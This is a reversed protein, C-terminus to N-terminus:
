KARLLILSPLVVADALLAVVMIFTNLLGFYITPVFSALVLVGFGICVIISSSIMARGKVKIGSRVSEVISWGEDRKMQYQTLFHVTNDVAIGIAVSSILATGTNLEIGAAGMLGFNLLIPISNPILSLFGLKVSKLSVGMLISIIFFAVCLSEDQVARGTVRIDMEPHPTKAIFNRIDDIMERQHDSRHVSSRVALRAQDYSSTVFDNIDSGGYLLLYQATLNKTAPLKYYVPDGDHFGQNMEKLFDTISLAIDVGPLSKVHQQIKEIVALAKPDKYQDSIRGRFSIDLSSSGALHKEIYEIDQRVPSSAKFYEVVNTEVPIKPIYPIALVLLFATVALVAKHRRVLFTHLGELMRDMIAGREAIDRNYYNQYLTESPFVLILGPLLGFAYIWEFVMGSTAAWAFERIMPVKDLALSLFGVATTITTFLCPWFVLRLVRKLAQHRDTSEHLISVDM